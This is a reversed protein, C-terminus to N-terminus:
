AGLDQLAHDSVLAVNVVNGSEAEHHASLGDGSARSSAHERVEEGVFSDLRKALLKQRCVPHKRHLLMGDVLPRGVVGDWWAM